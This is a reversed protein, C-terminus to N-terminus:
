GSIPHQFIVPSIDTPMTKTSDPLLAPGVNVVASRFSTQLSIMVHSLPSADSCGAAPRVHTYSVWNMEISTASPLLSESSCYQRSGAIALTVYRPVVYAPVHADTASYRSSM